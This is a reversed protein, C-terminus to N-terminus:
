LNALVLRVDRQGASRRAEFDVLPQDGPRTANQPRPAVENQLKTVIATAPHRRHQIAELVDPQDAIQGPNWPNHRTLKQGSFWRTRSEIEDVLGGVIVSAGIVVM